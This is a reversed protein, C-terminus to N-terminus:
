QGTYEKIVIKIGAESAYEKLIGTAALGGPQVRVDLTRNALPVENGSSGKISRRALDDIHDKTRNYWSAGNTNISKLSVVMDGKHFDILPFNQGKVKIYDGVTDDWVEYDDTNGWGSTKYENEYVYYQIERGRQVPKVGVQWVDGVKIFDGTDRPSQITQQIGNDDIYYYSGSARKFIVKGDPTTYHSDFAFGGGPGKITGDPMLTYDDPLNLLRGSDTGTEPNLDTKKGQGQGPKYSGLEGQEMKHFIYKLEDIADASLVGSQKAKTILAGLMDSAAKGAIADIGLSIAANIILRQKEEESEAQQLATGLEIIGEITQYLDYAKYLAYGIQLVVWFANNEAANEGADAAINVEGEAIFAALGAGLRALDVGTAKIKQLAAFQDSVSKSNILKFQEAPTLSGIKDYDFGLSKLEDDLKQKAAEYDQSSKYKDSVVEGIVAGGAGSACAIGSDTGESTSATAVGIACGLAAHSIYRVAQNIDGAEVAGGIEEAMGEGLSNIASTKLSVIFQDKFSDLDGGNFVTSIGASVTSNVVAQTAQNGVSVLTDTSMIPANPNVEGFFEISGVESLVGATAMSTAVARITDSRHMAKITEEIGNGNALSTAAQTALTLAGAQMAAGNVFGVAGISGGSGILGGAPGMAVSVAIAIIAMAAPSLNSTKDHKQIDELKSYVVDLMSTCQSFSPDNQMARYAFDAYGDPAQPLAPTPCKYQPDNYVDAMWSLSESNSFENIVDTVSEGDYQGLELTIGQTAQVKVGGIIENYVATDTTNQITETKIKWFGKKVKNYFYHDQEKALLLNVRGNRANIETGSGSKIDAAQLTIDGFESAIMVGRGAELASRIAITEFEQEQETTRGWKKYRQSQFQNFANAIYVGNAALIEIVGQDAYLEAANLEIAGSAMLFISDQANLKTTFHEVESIESDYGGVPQNNVYSTQQSKLIINGDAQLGITNGSITGGEVVIDGYSRIRINGNVDVSAIEGLRTGQEYRTAYRHVMTKQQYQGAIIDVNQNASLRGSLNQLTGGVFLNLDGDARIEAGPNVTLNEATKIFTNRQTKLTGSNITINNFEAVSGGFEAVHGDVSLKDITAQTLQVVPVLVSEGNITRLEPWIFNKNFTFVQSATVKDGFKINTAGAFDYANNYLANIQQAESTYNDSILTRNLSAYIQSRIMRSQVFRDGVRKKLEYHPFIITIGSNLIPIYQPAHLGHKKHEVLKKHFSEITQAQASQQTESIYESKVFQSDSNYVREFSPSNNLEQTAQAEDFLVFAHALSPLSLQGVLMLINLYGVVKQWVPVKKEPNFKNKKM